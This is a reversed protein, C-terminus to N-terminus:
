TRPAIAAVNEFMRPTAGPAVNEEPRHTLQIALGVGKLEDTDLDDNRREVEEKGLAIEFYRKLQILGYTNITGDRKLISCNDKFTKGWEEPNAGGTIKHKIKYAKIAGGEGAVEEVETIETEYMGPTIPVYETTVESLSATLKGMQHEKQPFYTRRCM